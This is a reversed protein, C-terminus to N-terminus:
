LRTDGRSSHMYKGDPYVLSRWPSVPNGFMEAATSRVAPHDPFRFFPELCQEPDNSQDTPRLKRIWDAWERLADPDGNSARAVTLESLNRGDTQWRHGHEPNPGYISIISRMLEKAVPIMPAAEWKM